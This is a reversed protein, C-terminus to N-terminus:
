ESVGERGGRGGRTTRFKGRCWIPGDGERGWVKDRALGAMRIWRRGRVSCRLFMYLSLFLCLSLNQKDSVLLLLLHIVRRVGVPRVQHGYSTEHEVFLGPVRLGASIEADQETM